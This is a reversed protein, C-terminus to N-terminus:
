VKNIIQHWVSCLLISTVDHIFFPASEIDTGKFEDENEIITAVRSDNRKWM